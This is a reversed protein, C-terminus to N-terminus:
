AISSPCEHMISCSVLYSYYEYTEEAGRWSEGQRGKVARMRPM